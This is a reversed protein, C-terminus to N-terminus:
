REAFAHRARLMADAMEYAYIACHDPFTSSALTDERCLEILAPLAKAAFHDRLSMGNFSPDDHLGPVPFAPNGDGLIQDM